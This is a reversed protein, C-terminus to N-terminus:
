AGKLWVGGLILAGGGAVAMWLFFWASAAFWGLLILAFLSAGLVLWRAGGWVGALMYTAAVCLSIVADAAAPTRPPSVAFVGALLASVALFGLGARRGHRREVGRRAVVSASLGLLVGLPWTWRSQQPTFQSVLNCVLWVAGWALLVDGQRAYQALHAAQAQAAEVEGLARVVERRSLAM